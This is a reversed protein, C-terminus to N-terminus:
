PRASKRRTRESKRPSTDILTNYEDEESINEYYLRARERCWKLIEETLIPMIETFISSTIFFMKTNSYINADSLIDINKNEKEPHKNKIHSKININFLDLINDQNKICNTYEKLRYNLVDQIDYGFIDNINTKFWRLASNYNLQFFVEREKKISIMLSCVIFCYLEFVAYLNKYFVTEKMDYMKSCIHLISYNIFAYGNEEDKEMEKELFNLYIFFPNHKSANDMKSNNYKYLIFITVACIILFVEMKLVWVFDM